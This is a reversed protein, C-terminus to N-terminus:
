SKLNMWPLETAQEKRLGSTSEDKLREKLRGKTGVQVPPMYGPERAIQNACMWVCAKGGDNPHERVDMDGVSITTKGFVIERESLM